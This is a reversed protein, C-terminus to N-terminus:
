SIVSIQGIKDMKDWNTWTKDWNQGSFIMSLDVSKSRFIPQPCFNLFRTSKIKNYKIVLNENKQGCILFNCFVISLDTNKVPCIKSLFQLFHVSITFETWILSYKM